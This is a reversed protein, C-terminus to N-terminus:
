AEGKTAATHAWKLSEFMRAGKANLRWGRKKARPEYEEVMFDPVPAWHGRPIMSFTSGGVLDDRWFEVMMNDGETVICGIRGADPHPRGSAKSDHHLMVYCGKAFLNRETHPNM